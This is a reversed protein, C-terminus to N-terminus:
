VTVQVGFEAGNVGAQTWAVETDPAVEWVQTLNRYASTLAQDAGTATVGGARALGALSRSGVGPNKAQVNLQVGYVDATLAPLAAFGYREAHGLTSSEVYDTDDNPSAEDVLAYHDTGTSPSFDAQGGDAEPLVTDVRCDGLFDANAAGQGDCIYLDDLFFVGVAETGLYNSLLTVINATANGTHQTDVGSASLVTTGDLRVELQDVQVPQPRCQLQQGLDGRRPGVPLVVGDQPAEGDLPGARM